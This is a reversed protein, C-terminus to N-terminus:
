RSLEPFEDSRAFLVSFAFRRMRREKKKQSLREPSSIDLVFCICFYFCGTYKQKSSEREMFSANTKTLEVRRANNDLHPDHSKM